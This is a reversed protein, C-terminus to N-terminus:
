RTLTDRLAQHIEDFVPAHDVTDLDDLEALRNLAADVRDGTPEPSPLTTM